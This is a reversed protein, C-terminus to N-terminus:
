KTKGNEEKIMSERKNFCLRSIEEINPKTNDDRKIFGNHIFDNLFYSYGDYYGISIIDDNDIEPLESFTKDDCLIKELIALKGDVFGSKYSVYKNENKMYTKLATTHRKDIEAILQEGSISMTQGTRELYEGYQYGDYYGISELNSKDLIPIKREGEESEYLVYHLGKKFGKAYEELGLM